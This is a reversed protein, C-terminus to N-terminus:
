ESSEDLEQKILERELKSDAEHLLGRCSDLDGQWDMFSRWTPNVGSNDYKTGIFVAPSCRKVLERILDDTPIIEVDKM